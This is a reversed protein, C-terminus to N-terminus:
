LFVRQGKILLSYNDFTVEDTFRRELRPIDIIPSSAQEPVDRAAIIDPSGFAPTYGYPGFWLVAMVVSLLLGAIFTRKGMNRGGTDATAGAAHQKRIEPPFLVSYVM